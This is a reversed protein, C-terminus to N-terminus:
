ADTTQLVHFSIVCLISWCEAAATLSYNISTPLPQTRIRAQFCQASSFVLLRKKARCLSLDGM